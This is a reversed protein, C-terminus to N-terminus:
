KKNFNEAIKSIGALVVVLGAIWPLDAYLAYGIIVLLSLAIVFAMYQGRQISKADSMIKLREMNRTHESNKQFETFLIDTAGPKLREYGEMTNVPPLPGEYTAEIALVKSSRHNDEVISNTTDKNM